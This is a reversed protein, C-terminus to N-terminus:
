TIMPNINDYSHCKKMAIQCPYNTQYYSLGTRDSTLDKWTKCTCPFTCSETRIERRFQDVAKPKLRYRRWATLLLTIEQNVSASKRLIYSNTHYKCCKSHKMRLLLVKLERATLCGRDQVGQGAWLLLLPAPQLRFCNIEIGQNTETPGDWPIWFHVWGM